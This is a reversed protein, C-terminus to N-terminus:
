TVLSPMSDSKKIDKVQIELFMVDNKTYGSNRALTTHPIFMYLGSEKDPKETDSNERRVSKVIKRLDNAPNEQDKLIVTARLICPWDLLPDWKGNEVKLCGIVHRDKWQGLGNLFLEMRLTYGYDKNLFIPSYIPSDDEKAINIKEKYREIRWILRGNTSFPGLERLCCKCESNDDNELTVVKSSDRVLEEVYILNEKAQFRLAKIDKRQENTTRVLERTEKGISDIKEQLEEYKNVLDKSDKCRMELELKLDHIRKLQEQWIGSVLISEKAVFTKLESLDKIWDDFLKDQKNQEENLGKQLLQLQESIKQFSICTRQEMSDCGLELVNLRQDLTSSNKRTEELSEITNLRMMDLIEQKRHLLTFNNIMTENLRKREREAEDISGRLLTLISLVKEKWMSDNPDVKIESNNRKSIKKLCSRDHIQMNRRPVYVGCKHPCEELVAGCHKVHESLYREELFENCFYCPVSRRVVNHANNNNM